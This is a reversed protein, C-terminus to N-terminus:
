FDFGMSLYFKPETFGQLNYQWAWDFRWLFIFNMRFGFGMGVLLQDTMWKGSESKKILKIQENEDWAMGMDVFATGLVNQFLIPLGGTVLYRIIPLRLELNVLSYKSGIQESYNYGRLPLAPTLFAFDAPSSIPITGTAFSRNIWNEVGGMFFRQPNPGGSYGGSLRFVFSNDYFFRFYRRYDFVVSYFAQKVNTFGPNGFARISYRTGQIPSYYGYLVDDYTYGVSPVFFDTTEKPLLYNDLNESSVSLWSISGDIRRYTDIPYSASVTVGLNRFRYLESGYLGYLYVFRATHFAEVGIDLRKALYYYALGYDSNKLDVQLGTVGVLRHNGLMDSFSLVTTGLLGYYTSVGANAYVLDPTFHVKYENVLFNGDKDLKESFLKERELNTTNDSRPMENQGFVFKSYDTQQVTSDEEEVVQGTFIRVRKSNTSDKSITSDVAIATEYRTYSTSDESAATTDIIVPNLLGYMYSTPEIVDATSKLEFPNNILFINYGPKYLTTFVLKKRDSSATIQNIGTLSNTVPIAEIDLITKVTDSEDLILKKKYINSIGNYDSVFLMSKGDASIIPSTESSLEWDTLREITKSESDIRYLDLQTYNHDLMAFGSNDGLKYLNEGRDSSFYVYKSDPSWKPESDTFIDNTLNSLEQTEFNWIYIDSQKTDSGVFALKKGDPSWSTSGIGQMMFPLESNTDNQVDIIAIVDYGRGKKSVALRNNDPSWTVSPTLLNLEELNNERGFNSVKKIIEGTNANMVFLGLFIDRDSIFAVKDGQPSIAPSMSYFGGDEENDTLRKAYEDPDTMKAIDPWYKKKVWKKWRENLEEFSLGISAKLGSELNGLGKTKNLLEGIKERGYTEAIYYFLAQGGRYGFYGSLGKIDPLYENIIADRIFMDTNTEYGSSLFEAMGEHYWHPLQLTINKAIINQVTGGYLLDRMVAHVLEHHIVHRFKKYDGEFPFVVRNKFPETFGGVGESLYGDTTNTEQFDNHSNYVVLSIRNNLQYDLDTLISALADEAANATFEAIDTGEPSFYIDFHTTQIYLWEYEKYQVRNKGFQAFLSSAAFLLLFTTYFFKM